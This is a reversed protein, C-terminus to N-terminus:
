VTAAEVGKTVEEVQKDAGAGAGAQSAGSAPTTSGTASGNGAAGNGNGNVPTQSGTAAPSGPGGVLAGSPKRGKGWAGTPPPDRKTPPAVTAAAPAPSTSESAGAPAESSAAQSASAESGAKESGDTQKRQRSGGRERDARPGTPAKALAQDKDAKSKERRVREEEKREKERQAMRKEIERERESQDIPRAAGFPNAKGSSAEPSKLAEAATSADGSPTSRPKLDLKKREAPPGATTSSPSGPTQETSMGRKNPQGSPRRGASRWNEAEDGPGPVAAAAAAASPGPANSGRRDAGFGSRKAGPGAPSEPPTPVFKSGFGLREQSAFREDVETADNRRFSPARAGEASPRRASIPSALPEKPKGTRWDSATDGASPELSEPAGTLPTRPARMPERAPASPTFKSGFGSRGGAGVEMSDFGSSGGGGLSPERGFGPRDGGRAPGGRSPGESPPLPGARRWQSAEEAVSPAGFGSGGKAKINLVPSDINLSRLLFSGLISERPEAVGVRVARNVLPAGNRTLADKLGDLTEFEVYGFGKPRGDQGNVIRVSVLQLM